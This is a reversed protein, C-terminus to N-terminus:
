GRGPFARAFGCAGWLGLRTRRAGAVTQAIAAADRTNPEIPLPRALGAAALARALDRGALPGDVVTVQALTRGFRDVPEQGRTLRVSRGRLNADAWAAAEDGFCGAPRDAHAIEPTDIGIVRVTEEGASLAIRFTDGDAVHTIRGVAPDTTSRDSGTGRGLAVALALVVLCALGLGLVRVRDPV